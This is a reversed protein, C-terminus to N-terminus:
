DTNYRHVPVLYQKHFLVDWADTENCIILTIMVINDDTHEINIMIVTVLKRGTPIRTIIVNM